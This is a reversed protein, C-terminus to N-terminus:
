TSDLLDMINENYIELYQCRVDFEVNIANEDLKPLNGNLTVASSRASRKGGNKLQSQHM